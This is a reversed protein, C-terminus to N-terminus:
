HPFGARSLDVMSPDRTNRREGCQNRRTDAQWNGCVVIHASRFATRERICKSRASLGAIMSVWLLSSLGGNQAPCFISVWM